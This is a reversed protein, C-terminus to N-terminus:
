GHCQLLGWSTSWELASSRLRKLNVSHYFLLPNKSSWLATEHVICIYYQRMWVYKNATYLTVGQRIILISSGDNDGV